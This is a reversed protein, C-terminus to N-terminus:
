GGRCAGRGPPELRGPPAQGVHRQFAVSFSSASGYGVRGALEAVAAGEHRLADKALAMRWALLYAMPAVGVVRRFREFFASRSLAAADALAQLTWPHAVQAHMAHLARAIREDGLGRLLGPPAAASSVSRMAEVLMLDVLWALVVDRGPQEARVEEGLMRVLQRLRRSGRVHVVDPLLAVLLGHDAGDFHFAGGIARMDPRGGPEGYRLEGAAGAARHPDMPQEPVPRGGSLTFPPTKPLLVFDGAQVLVPAQGDVALRCGGDLLICFSPEGYAAYRVAWDGRGAIRNAFVAQPQLLRVVDTLPDAM